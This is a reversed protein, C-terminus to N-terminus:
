HRRNAMGALFGIGAAIALTLLPRQSVEDEVKRLADGGLRAAEDGVASAGNRVRETAGNITDSVFESAGNAADRTSRKALENLKGVRTEIDSMLQGIEREISHIDDTITSKRAMINRQRNGAADAAFEGVWRAIHPVPERRSTQRNIPNSLILIIRACGDSSPQAWIGPRARPSPSDRGTPPNIGIGPSPEAGIPLVILIIFLITESLSM